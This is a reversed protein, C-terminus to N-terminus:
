PKEFHVMRRKNDFTIKFRELLRRGIRPYSALSLDADTCSIASVNRFVLDGLSIQRVLGSPPDTMALEFDGASDLIFEVPRGDLVGSGGFAGRVDRLPVSAVLNSNMPEYDADVALLLSRQAYDFRVLQFTKLLNCGIVMVPPRDLERRALAGLPGKAARVYFLATEISVGEMRLTDVASLYGSIDDVVHEPRFEFAPPGLPTAGMKRATDYALWSEKSSTDVLAIYKTSETTTVEILPPASKDKSFVQLAPRSLFSLQALQEPHLRNAGSFQPGATTQYVTIWFLRPDKAGEFFARKQSENLPQIENKNHTVCAGCVGLLVVGIWYRFKSM